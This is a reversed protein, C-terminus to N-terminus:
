KLLVMKKTSIYEGAQIQYLYIGASVPKGYDNAANWIVSKYGADQRQSVLTKVQRGMMDYITINVYAQEPLDYRLTTIPNFPNPYNQHVAFEDPIAIGLDTWLVTMDVVESYDSVNGGDDFAVLRYYITIDIEYDTDVYATDATEIVQYEGFDETNSKELHFYQFDEAASLDWSLYIGTESVSAMLGTPAGPAINDVSYGEASESILAGVEMAAIVRFATMGDNEGSSDALTHAETTYHESGYADFSHLSVWVDDDLREITYSGLPGEDSADHVSPTFQIYVWNGQDDPVDWVDVISPFEIDLSECGVEFAGMHDRDGWSDILCPSSESLTYDGDDPSCFLPNLDINHQGEGTWGGQVNSYHVYVSNTPNNTWDHISNGAIDWIITNVIEATSTDRVLVGIESCNAITSYNIYAGAHTGINVGFRADDVLNFELDASSHNLVWIAEQEINLFYNNRIYAYSSDQVILGRYADAVTFGEFAAMSSNSIYVTGNLITEDPGDASVVRIDKDVTIAVFEYIGAAVLIDDGNESSDIAIQITAFPNHESGNGTSDSGTTSIYWIPGSYPPCTESWDYPWNQNSSWTTHIACQNTDNLATNDFMSNFNNVQSIDWSSLDQNFSDADNFMYGMGNVNSIDWNSIDGNFNGAGHFMGTMSTVSSVDWSSLDQNFSSALYFMGTMDTVSSVDWTDITDNFSSSYFLGAMNTVSSVDWSSLDQNSNDTGRFLWRMNTVNSVDWSSLDQNFSSALNFMADMNTVNSVDWSGIFDNFTNQSDFLESMDTILSVDWTNIDGYAAVASASDSVWLNVATDLAARTQPQFANWTWTAGNIDGHNANGTHDYAITDSGADFKWYGLLDSSSVYDSSNSLADLGPGGNYLTTIAIASLATDWVAVEHIKGDFWNGSFDWIGGGGINFDFDNTGYNSTNYVSSTKLESDIYIKIDTGSGTFVVHHLANFAFTTDTFDWEIEDGMIYGKITNEDLFGFECLNNQGFFGERNGASEPTIWGAMTFQNVDNLLSTETGVYDNVGDFNLSYEGNDPYGSCSGDDIDATSDYNDAYPDTCGSQETNTPPPDVPPVDTSWIAGYITGDNDNSTADSATTGTGENFNWYGVLGTESGTPSTAMYSQIQSHSLTDNWISVEDIKDNWVLHPVGNEQVRAGIFLSDTNTNMGSYSGYNTGDFSVTIGNVVMKLSNYDTGGSYTVAIYNWDGTNLTGYSANAHIQDIGNSRLMYSISGDNEKLMQFSKADGTETQGHGIIQKYNGDNGGGDGYVWILVTFKQYDSFTNNIASGSISVYDDVGDFSLSHNTSDEIQSLGFSNLLIIITIIKKM